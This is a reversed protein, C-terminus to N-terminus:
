LYGRAQARALNLSSWPEPGLERAIPALAAERLPAAVSAAIAAEDEIVAIRRKEM